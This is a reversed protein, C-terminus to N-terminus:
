INLDRRGAIVYSMLSDLNRPLDFAINVQKVKKKVRFGKKVSFFFDLINSIHFNLAKFLINMRWFLLIRM